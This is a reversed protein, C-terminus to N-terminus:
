APTPEELEIGERGNRSAEVQHITVRLDGQGNENLDLRQESDDSAEVHVFEAVIDGDGAVVGADSRQRM